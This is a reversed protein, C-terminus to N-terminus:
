TQKSPRKKLKSSKRNDRRLELSARMLGIVLFYFTMVSFTSALTNRQLASTIPVLVLSILAAIFMQTSPLRAAVALPGYILFAWNIYNTSISVFGLVFILLVSYAVQNFSPNDAVTPAFVAPVPLQPPDAALQILQERRKQLESYQVLANKNARAVVPRWSSNGGGRIENGVM